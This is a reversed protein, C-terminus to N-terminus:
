CHWDCGRGEAHRNHRRRPAQRHHRQLGVAIQRMVGLAITRIGEWAGGFDGTLVGAVTKIIGAFVEFIGKLRQGFMVAITKAVPILVPGIAVWLDKLAPLLDNKVTAFVGGLSDKLTLWLPMLEAKIKPIIETAWDIIKTLTPVLNRAVTFAIGQFRAKLRTMSDSFEAASNAADQDFVVGLEHAEQRLAAIGESGEKLLPLLRTGSRGFVDQALAAKQVEDPCILLRAPSCASRNKPPYGRCTRLRYGWSTWRM